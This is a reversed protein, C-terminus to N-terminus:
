WVVKGFPQRYRIKHKIKDYYRPDAREFKSFASGAVYDAIQIGYDMHSFSHRIFHKPPRYGTLKHFKEQKKFQLYDNFKKIQEWSHRRDFIFEIEDVQYNRAIDGLLYNLVLFNYLKVTDSRIENRIDQKRVVVLGADFRLGGIESLFFFRVDERDRAFKLEYTSHFGWQRLVRKIRSRLYDPDDTYVFSAIFFKSGLNSMM